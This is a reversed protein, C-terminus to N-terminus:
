EQEMLAVRFGSISDYVLKYKKRDVMDTIFIDSRLSVEIKLAGVNIMAIADDPQPLKAIM